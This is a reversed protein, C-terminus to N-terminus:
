LNKLSFEWNILNKKTKLGGPGSYNGLGGDSKVVRHCPIIPATKNKAMASGVARYAGAYGSQTALEKYTITTGEKVKCLTRYVNKQFDSLGKIKNISFKFESDLYKPYDAKKIFKSGVIYGQEDVDLEISLNYYNRKVKKM